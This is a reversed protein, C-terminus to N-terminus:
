RGVKKRSNGVRMGSGQKGEESGREHTGEGHNERQLYLELIEVRESTRGEKREVEV